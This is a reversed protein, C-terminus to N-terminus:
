HEIRLALQALREGIVPAFKMANSAGSAIV